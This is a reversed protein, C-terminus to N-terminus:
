YGDVNLAEAKETMKEVVINEFPRFAEREYECILFVDELKRHAKLACFVQDFPLTGFGPPYHLDGMGFLARRNMPVRRYADFDTIRLEMFKGVNDNLHVHGANAACEQLAEFFDQGFYGCSLFLHGTDLAFQLNRRDVSQVFDLALRYDEIEINEMAMRVSKEAAYDSACRYADFFRREVWELKGRNEYHVTLVEVGLRGCVDISRLLLNEHAAYGDRSRMDLVSSVHASYRLPKRLMIERAYDAVRDAVVGDLIFPLIDLDIEAVRGGIEVIRDLARQFDGGEPRECNVGVLYM